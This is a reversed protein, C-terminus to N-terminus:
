LWRWAVCRLWTCMRSLARLAAVVIRTRNEYDSDPEVACALMSIFPDLLHKQHARSVVGVETPVHPHPTLTYMHMVDVCALWAAVRVVCFGHLCAACTSRSTTTRSSVLTRWSLPAHSSWPTCWWSM